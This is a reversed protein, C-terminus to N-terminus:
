NLQKRDEVHKQTLEHTCLPALYLGDQSDPLGPKLGLGVVLSVLAERKSVSTM